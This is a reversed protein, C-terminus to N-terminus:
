IIPGTWKQITKYRIMKFMNKNYVKKLIYDTRNPGFSLNKLDSQVCVPGSRVHMTEIQVLRLQERLDIYKLIM